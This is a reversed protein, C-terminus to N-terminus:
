YNNVIIYENTFILSSNSNIKIFFIIKEYDVFLFATLCIIKIM